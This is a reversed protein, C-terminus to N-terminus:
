KSLNNEFYDWFTPFDGVYGQTMFECNLHYWSTAVDKPNRAVYVVKLSFMM